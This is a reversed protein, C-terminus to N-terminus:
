INQKCEDPLYSLLIDRLEIYEESPETGNMIQIQSWCVGLIEKTVFVDYPETCAVLHSWFFRDLRIVGALELAPKIPPAYVFEPYMMCRVRATMVSGFCTEKFGNSISFIPALLYMGDFANRAKDRQAGVPLSSPNVGDIKAIVICPRQKARIALLEETEGLSLAAIPLRDRKKRFDVEDKLLRFNHISTQHATSDSRQVEIVNQRRNEYVVPTYVIQGVEIDTSIKRSSDYYTFLSSLDDGVEISSM